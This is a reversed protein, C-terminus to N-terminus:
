WTDDKKLSTKALNCIITKQNECESTGAEAMKSRQSHPNHSLFFHLNRYADVHNASTEAQGLELQRAGGASQIQAM